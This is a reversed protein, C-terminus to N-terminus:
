DELEEFLPAGTVFGAGLRGGAGCAPLYGCHWKGICAAETKYHPAGGRCWRELECLKRLLEAQFRAQVEQPYVIEWRKFWHSPDRGADDWVKERMGEATLKSRYGPVRVVNYLVGRVPEGLEAAKATVYFLCQFDFGIADNLADEPIQSKTKTEFIWATGNPDRWVGDCRGRLRFGQWRV